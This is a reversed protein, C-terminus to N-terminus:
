IVWILSSTMGNSSLMKVSKVLSDHHKHILLKLVLCLGYGNQLLIIQIETVLIESKAMQRIAM